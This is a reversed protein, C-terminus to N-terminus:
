CRTYIFEGNEFLASSDIAVHKISGDKCRLRAPYARLTEGSSLWSLIDDIVSKDAHFQAINCGIYEARSYGLLDIEAQNAWLIPGDRSVSHMGVTAAEMFDRLSTESPNGGRFGECSKPSPALVSATAATTKSGGSKREPETTFSQCENPVTPRDGSM